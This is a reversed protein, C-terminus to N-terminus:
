APRFVIPGYWVAEVRDDSRIARSLRVDDVSHHKHKALTSFARNFFTESSMWLEASNGSQVNARTLTCKTLTTSSGSPPSPTTGTAPVSHTIERTALFSLVDLYMILPSPCCKGLDCSLQVLTADIELVVAEEDQLSLDLLDRLHCWKSRFWALGSQKLIKLLDNAAINKDLGRAM